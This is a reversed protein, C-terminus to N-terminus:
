EDIEDRKRGDEGRRTFEDVAKPLLLFLAGIL